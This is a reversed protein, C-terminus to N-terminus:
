FRVCIDDSFKVYMHMMRNQDHKYSNTNNVNNIVDDPGLM